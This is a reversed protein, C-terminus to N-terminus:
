RSRVASCAASRASPAASSRHVLPATLRGGCPECGAGPPGYGAVGVGLGRDRRAYRGRDGALARYAWRLEGDVAEWTVALIGRSMPGPPFEERDWVTSWVPLAALWRCTEAVGFPFERTLGIRMSEYEALRWVEAFEARPVQLNEGQARTLAEDTVEVVGLTVGAM